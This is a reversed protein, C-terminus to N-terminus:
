GETLLKRRAVCAAHIHDLGQSRSVGELLVLCADHAGSAVADAAGESRLVPWVDTDVQAPLGPPEVTEPVATKRARGGM